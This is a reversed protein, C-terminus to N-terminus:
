RVSSPKVLFGASRRAGRRGERRAAGVHDVPRDLGVRHAHQDVGAAGLADGLVVGDDDADVAVARREDADDLADFACLETTVSSVLGSKAIPADTGSRWALPM